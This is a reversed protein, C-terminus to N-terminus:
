RVSRPSSSTSCCATPRRPRSHGATRALLRAEDATLVGSCVAARFDADVFLRRLVQRATLQPWLGKLLAKFSPHRKLAARWRSDAQQLTRVEYQRVMANVLATEVAKRGDHWGRTRGLVQRVLQEVEAATL